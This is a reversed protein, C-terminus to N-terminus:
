RGKRQASWDFREGLLAVLERDATDFYSELRAQIRPEMDPYSGVERPELNEPYITEIGLFAYIDGLCQKPDSFLERSNIFHFQERPFHRLWANIHRAYLGRYLYLESVEQSLDDNNIAQEFTPYDPDAGHIRFTHNRNMHYASYAREVPDRLLVLLKVAPNDRHLREAADESFLYYPSAEGTLKDRSTMRLPFHSRYWRLGRGNLAHYNYYHIEKEISLKLQPHQWLYYFLSSTGSKQAGVIVFDPLRRWPATAFRWYFTLRNYFARSRSTMAM